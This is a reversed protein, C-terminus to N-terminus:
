SFFEILALLFDVVRKGNLRRHDDYTARLSGLPPEFVCFPRNANFIASRKFFTQSMTKKYSFQWRCFQLVNMPRVIRAFIIPPSRGRRGSIKLWLSRTPAFDGIKSRFLSGYFRSMKNKAIVKALRLRNKYNKYRKLRSFIRCAIYYFKDCWRM